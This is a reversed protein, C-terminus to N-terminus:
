RPPRAPDVTGLVAATDDDQLLDPRREVWGRVVALAEPFHTETPRVAGVTRGQADLFSVVAPRPGTPGRTQAGQVLVRRLDQLGTERSRGFARRSVGNPTLRVTTGWLGWLALLMGVLLVAAVAWGLVVFASWGTRDFPVGPDGARVADLVAVVIGLCLPGLVVAGLVRMGRAVRSM